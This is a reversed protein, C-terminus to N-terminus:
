LLSLGERFFALARSRQDDADVLDAYRLVAGFSANWFDGEQPAWPGIYCYPSPEAEDGPSCGFNARTGGPAAADFAADFHEPWLQVRSPTADDGVESRLEELVSWAYGFWDGVAFASREDIALPADSTPGDVGVISAAEALTTIPAAKCRGASQHVLATGDVRVQEDEGFFPTGFGGLTWRLGIKGTAAERAPSVVSGALQHLSARTEAFGDPLAALRKYPGLWRAMCFGAVEPDDSDLDIWREDGTAVPSIVKCAPAVAGRAVPDDAFWPSERAAPPSPELVRVEYIPGVRAQAEARASRCEVEVADDAATM